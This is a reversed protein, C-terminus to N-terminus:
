CRLAFIKGIHIPFGWTFKWSTIGNTIEKSIMYNKRQHNYITNMKLLKPLFRQVAQELILSVSMKLLKRLDLFFEYDDVRLKIHFKHWNVPKSKKQYRVLSGLCGPNPIYNMYHKILLIIIESRSIGRIQAACAIQELIKTHINLTTKM